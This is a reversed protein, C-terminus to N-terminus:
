IYNLSEPWLCPLPWIGNLPEPRSESDVSFLWETLDAATVTWQSAGFDVQLADVGQSTITLSDQTRELFVDQLDAILGPGNIVKTLWSVPQSIIHQDHPLLAMLGLDEDLVPILLGHLSEQQLPRIAELLGQPDGAWETVRSPESGRSPKHNVIVYTVPRGQREVIYSTPIGQEVATLPQVRLLIELERHSRGFRTSRTQNLRAIVTADQHPDLPRVHYSSDSRVKQPFPHWTVRGIARAGFKTYLPLDGSILMLRAGEDSLRHEALRLLQSALGRGRYSPDTAVSGVSAVTTAGGAMVAPWVMAGVISCITDGDQAIVWHHANSEDYLHPFEDAMHGDRRSRFVRDALVRIQPLDSPTAVRIEM